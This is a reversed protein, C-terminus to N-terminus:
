ESEEDPFAPQGAAERPEGLLIMERAVVEVSQHKQGDPDDWRRTQLRGEIFVRQGRRLHQHCIEALSGWTVIQFWETEEHREGDPSRWSRSTALTFTTVARGSPTQRMEPDRGLHGILLVRNLGRSM